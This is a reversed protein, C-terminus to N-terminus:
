CDRCYRVVQEIQSRHPIGIDRLTGDDLKTLAAVAKKIERQRRWHAWRSAIARRPKGLWNRCTEREPATVGPRASPSVIFIFKRRECPSIKEPQRASAEAPSTAIENLLAGYSGCSAGYLAFGETLFTFISPWSGINQRDARTMTPTIAPPSKVDALDLRPAWAGNEHTTSSNDRMAIRLKRSPVGYWRDVGNLSGSSNLM